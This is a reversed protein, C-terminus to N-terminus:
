VRVVVELVLAEVTSAIRDLSSFLFKNVPGAQAFRPKRATQAALISFSQM